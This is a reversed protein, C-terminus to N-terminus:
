LSFFYLFFSFNELFDTRGCKEHVFWNLKCFMEVEDLFLLIMQSLYKWCKTRCNSVYLARKSGINLEHDQQNDLYIFLFHIFPKNRWLARLLVKCSVLIEKLSRQIQIAARMPAFSCPFESFLLKLLFKNLKTFHGGPCIPENIGFNRENGHRQRSEM